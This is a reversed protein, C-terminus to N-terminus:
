FEMPLWSFSEPIVLRAFTRSFFDLGSMLGVAERPVNNNKTHKKGGWTHMGHDEEGRLLHFSGLPHRRHQRLRGDDRRPDRVPHAWPHLTSVLPPDRDSVVIQRLSSSSLSSIHIQHHHITTMAVCRGWSSIQLQPWRKSRLREWPLRCSSASRDVPFLRPHQHRVTSEEEFENDLAVAKEGQLSAVAHLGPPLADFHCRESFGLNADGAHLVDCCSKSWSPYCFTMICKGQLHLLAGRTKRWLCFSFWCRHLVYLDASLVNQWVNMRGCVWILRFIYLVLGFNPFVLPPKVYHCPTPTKVSEKPLPDILLSKLINDCIRQTRYAGSTVHSIVVHMQKRLWAPLIIAVAPSPNLISLITLILKLWDVNQGLSNVDNQPLTSRSIEWDRQQAPVSSTFAPPPCPPQELHLNKWIDLEPLQRSGYTPLHYFWVCSQAPPGCRPQLAVWNNYKQNGLGPLGGPPLGSLM